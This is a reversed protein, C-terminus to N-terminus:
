LVPFHKRIPTDDDIERKIIIQKFHYELERLLDNKCVLTNKPLLENWCGVPRCWVPARDPKRLENVDQWRKIIHKNGDSAAVAAVKEALTRVVAIESQSFCNNSM